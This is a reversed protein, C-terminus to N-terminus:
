QVTRGNHNIGDGVCTWGEKGGGDRVWAVQLGLGDHDGIRQMECFDDELADAQSFIM